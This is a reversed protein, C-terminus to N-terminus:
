KWGIPRGVGIKVNGSGTALVRYLGNDNPDRLVYLLSAADPSWKVFATSRKVSATQKPAFVVQFGVGNSGITCLKSGGGAIGEAFVLRNSTGPSWAPSGYSGGSRVVFSGGADITFLQSGSGNLPGTGVITLGDPSWDYDYLISFKEFEDYAVMPTSLKLYPAGVGMPAGLGDFLVQMGFVGAEVVDGGILEHFESWVAGEIRRGVFSVEQDGPVWRMGGLAAPDVNGLALAIVSQQGTQSFFRLEPAFESTAFGPDALQVFWRSGGHLAYSVHIPDYPFTASQNFMAAKGTGDTNMSYATNVAGSTEYTFVKTASGGTTGTTSGGGSGKQAASTTSTAAVALMAAAVCAIAIHDKLM